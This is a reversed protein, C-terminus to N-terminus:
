LCFRKRIHHLTLSERDVNSLQLTVTEIFTLDTKLRGSVQNKGSAYTTDDYESSNGENKGGIKHCAAWPCSKCAKKSTIPLWEVKQLCLLDLYLPTTSQVPCFSNAPRQPTTQAKWLLLTSLMLVAHVGEEVTKSDWNVLPYLFASKHNIARQFNQSPTTVPFLAHTTQASERIIQSILSFIPRCHM